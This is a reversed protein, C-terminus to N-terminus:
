DKRQIEVSVTLTRETTGKYTGDFMEDFFLGREYKDFLGRAGNTQVSAAM